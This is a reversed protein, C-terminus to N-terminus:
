PATLPGVAFDARPLEECRALFNCLWAVYTAAAPATVQDPRLLIRMKLIYQHILGLQAWRDVGPKVRKLWRWFDFM